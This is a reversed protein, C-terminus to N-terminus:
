SPERLVGRLALSHSEPLSEVRKYAQTPKGRTPNEKMDRFSKQGILLWKARPM